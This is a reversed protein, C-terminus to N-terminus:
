ARIQIKGEVERVDYVKLADAAPGSIVAGTPLDFRSGDCQCMITTASLLGSSLPCGDHTCLDEFAYLRGGVRAISIRLKRDILYTPIVAGERIAEGAAVTRFAALAPDNM